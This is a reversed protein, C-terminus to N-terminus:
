KSTRKEIAEVQTVVKGGARSRVREAFRRRQEAEVRLNTFVFEFDQRLDDFIAVCEDDTRGHVGLSLHTYLQGLPNVGGPRLAAPVLESAVQLKDEYRIQTKAAEISKITEADAGYTRALEVVVDILEDTKEEVVRRMYSVAGIGYNQSRCVLANKYYTATKDLRRQLDAPIDISQAPIQGIKQVAFYAWQKPVFHSEPDERWNLMRYVVLLSNGGCLGCTYGAWRFSVRPETNVTTDGQERLSWTTEKACSASTCMRTVSRPPNFDKIEARTYLAWSEIFEQPTPMVKQAM